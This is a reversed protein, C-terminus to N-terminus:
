GKAKLQDAILMQSNAIVASLSKASQQSSIATQKMTRSTTPCSSRGDWDGPVPRRLRRSRGQFVALQRRAIAACEFPAGRHPLPAQRRAPGEVEMIQARRDEGTFRLEAARWPAADDCDAWKRDLIAPICDFHELDWSQPEEKYVVGSRYLPPILPVRGGSKRHMLRNIELLKLNVTATGMLIFRVAM